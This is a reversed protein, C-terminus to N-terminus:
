SGQGGVLVGLKARVDEADPHSLETLVRVARLWCDRADAWDGLRLLVEGLQALVDAGEYLEGRTFFMEVALRLCAVGEEHRALGILATGRSRLAFREDDVVGRRRWIALVDDALELAVEHRGMSSSIDGVAQMVDPELNTLDLERVLRLAEIAHGYARDHEGHKGAALALNYQARAEGERAGLERQLELVQQLYRLSDDHLRAIGHAVGLGSLIGAEGPRNGSLRAARLAVDFVSRWEDLRARIIFFSQLLWALQWCQEYRGERFAFRVAAVLNGAEEDFWDLADQHCTFDAGTTLDDPSILIHHREPRLIRSANLASGRYWDLLREIAAQRTDIDDFRHSLEAAYVRILDHFQYRGPRSGGILYASVLMELSARAESVALGAIAAAAPASIDTGTPLGLLRLLRAAKEDLAQYSHSFVARINTLEGDALDFSGLRDHERDLEAVFRTLPVDVFQDARVALIRIALPLRGCYEVFREAAERDSEVRDVGITAALLTIADEQALEDLAVRHAGHTAVLTRLQWRSTVLVLCGPGPLLSRVQDTSGANDLLILLRRGASHTRWLAARGDLDSPIRDAPVGLSTLMTELAAAPEVPDGPGYGRLNVLIQGGPFRDAVEHGFHVALTTKGIGGMGEISAIPTSAQGAAAREDPQADQVLAWLAKLDAERGAFGGLDAPLQRPILPEPGLLYRGAGAGVSFDGAQEGTLIVHHARQLSAGPDLGLEEALLSSIKRYVALADAQRGSRYLAIMLQEHLRERLPHERTWRTLGPIVTEYDGLGLLADAWQERVRLREELLQPVEDRHLADSEVNVMPAGRWQALAKALLDASHRLRGGAAAAKGHAALRRFRTLDLAAEDVEIRYGGRETRISGADGLAKRVRLVYTQLAGKSRRQDDEDWLWRSLKDVSVVQNAHLLLGALVILPRSGGLAVPQEGTTAEVPGLVRFELPV